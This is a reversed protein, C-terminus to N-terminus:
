MGMGSSDNQSVYRTEIVKPGEEHEPGAHHTPSPSSANSATVEGLVVPLIAESISKRVDQALMEKKLQAKAVSQVSPHTFITIVSQM